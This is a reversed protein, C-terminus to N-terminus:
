LGLRVAMREAGTGDIAFLFFVRSVGINEAVKSLTTASFYQSAIRFGYRAQRVVKIPYMIERKLVTFSPNNKKFSIKEGPLLGTVCKAAM